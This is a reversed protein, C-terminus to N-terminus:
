VPKKEASKIKHSDGAVWDTLFRFKEFFVQPKKPPGNLLVLSIDVPFTDSYHAPINYSFCLPYLKM